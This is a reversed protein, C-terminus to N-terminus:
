YVQEFQLLIPKVAHMVVYLYNTKIVKVAESSCGAQYVFKEHNVCKSM